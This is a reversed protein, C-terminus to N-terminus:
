SLGIVCGPQKGIVWLMTDNPNEGGGKWKLFIYKIISFTAVGILGMVSFGLLATLFHGRDLFAKDPLFLFVALSNLGAFLFGGQTGLKETLQVNRIKELVFMAQAMVFLLFLIFEPWEMADVFHSM